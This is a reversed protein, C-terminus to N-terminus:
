CADDRRHPPGFVLRDLTESAWTMIWHFGCLFGALIAATLASGFAYQWDGQEVREAGQSLFCFLLLIFIYGFNLIHLSRGCMRRRTKCDFMRLLFHPQAEPKDPFGEPDRSIHVKWGIERVNQYEYYIRRYRWAPFQKSLLEQIAVAAEEEHIACVELGYLDHLMDISGFDSLWCYGNDSLMQLAANRFEFLDPHFDFSKM